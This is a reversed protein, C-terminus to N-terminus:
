EGPRRAGLRGGAERPRVAGQKVKRPELRADGEGDARHQSSQLQRRRDLEDEVRHCAHARPEVEHAEEGARAPRRSHHQPPRRRLLPPLEEARVRGRANRKRDPQREGATGLAEQGANPLLQM